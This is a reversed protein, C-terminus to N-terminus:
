FLIVLFALVILIASVLTIQYKKRLIYRQVM